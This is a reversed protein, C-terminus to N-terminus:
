ASPFPKNKSTVASIDPLVKLMIELSGRSVKIQDIIHFINDNKQILHFRIIGVHNGAVKYDDIIKRWM